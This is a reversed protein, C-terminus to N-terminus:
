ATDGEGHEEYGHSILTTPHVPGTSGLTDCSFLLVVRPTLWWPLSRVIAFKAFSANHIKKITSFVDLTMSSRLIPLSRTSELTYRITPLIQEFGSFEGAFWKVAGRNLWDVM